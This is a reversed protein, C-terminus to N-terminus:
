LRGGRLGRVFVIVSNSLFLSMLNKIILAVNGILYRLSACAKNHYMSNILYCEKLYSNLSLATFGVPATRVIVIRRVVRNPNGMLVRLYLDYDASISYATNYGYRKATATHFLIAQHSTPMTCFSFSPYITKVMGDPWAFESGYLLVPDGKKSQVSVIDALIEGLKLLKDGSNLFLSYVGEAMRLGKNMADYIGEDPESVYADITDGYREIVELTNDTSAGDIVLYELQDCAFKRISDITIQLDDCSNYTVTIISLLKM